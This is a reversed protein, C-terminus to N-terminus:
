KELDQLIQKAEEAAKTKPYKKILDELQEKAKSQMRERAEQRDKGEPLDAASKLLRKPSRLLDGADVETRKRIEEPDNRKREAEANASRKKDAADKQRKADEEQAAKEKALQEPTKPPIKQVFEASVWGVRGHLEGDLIQIRKRGFLGSSFGGGSVERVETGSAVSFGHGNLIMLAMGRKDGDSSLEILRSLDDETTGLVVNNGSPNQIIWRANKEDEERKKALEAETAVRPPFQEVVRCDILVVSDGVNKENNGHGGCKGKIVFRVDSRAPQLNDIENNEAFFCRV